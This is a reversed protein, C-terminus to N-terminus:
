NIKDALKKFMLQKKLHITCKKQEITEKNKCTKGCKQNKRKGSKLINECMIINKIPKDHQHCFTVFCPKNCITGKNKGSKFLATCKNPIYCKTKPINIGRRKHLPFRDNIPILGNQVRRCYPCKIQYMSLTTTEYYSKKKQNAIENFIPLYNFKHKCELTVHDEELQEQNILCINTRDIEENDLSDYLFMNFLESNM